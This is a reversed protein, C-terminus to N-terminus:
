ILPMNGSHPATRQACHYLVQSMIRLYDVLHQAKKWEEVIQAEMVPGELTHM